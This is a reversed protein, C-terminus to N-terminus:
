STTRSAGWSRRSAAWARKRGGRSAAWAEQWREGSTRLGRSSAGEGSGPMARCVRPWRIRSARSGGRWRPRPVQRRARWRRREGAIAGPAATAFGLLSKSKVARVASIVGQVARAIGATMPGGAFSLVTLAYPTVKKLFGGIRSLLGPKKCSSETVQGEANVSLKLNYKGLKTQLEEGGNLTAAIEQFKAELEAEGLKASAKGPVGAYTDLQGMLQERDMRPLGIRDLTKFNDLVKRLKEQQDPLTTATMLYRTASVVQNPDVRELALGARKLVAALDVPTLDLRSGDAGLQGEPDLAQRALEANHAGEADTVGGQRRGLECVLNVQNENWLTQPPPKSPDLGSGLLALDEETFDSTEGTPPAGGASPAEERFAPEESLDLVEVRGQYLRLENESTTATSEVQRIEGLATRAGQSWRAVEDLEMAAGRAEERIRALGERAGVLHAFVSSRKALAFSPVSSLLDGAAEMVRTLHDGALEIGYAVRANPDARAWLAERARAVGM